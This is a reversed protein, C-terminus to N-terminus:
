DVMDPVKLLLLRQRSLFYDGNKQFYQNTLVSLTEQLYYRLIKLGEHCNM